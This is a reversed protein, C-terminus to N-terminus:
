TRRRMMVEKEHRKRRRNTAGFVVKLLYAWKEEETGKSSTFTLYRM